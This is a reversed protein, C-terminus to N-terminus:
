GTEAPASGFYGLGLRGLDMSGHLEGSLWHAACKLALLFLSTDFWIVGLMGSCRGGWGALDGGDAQLSRFSHGKIHIKISAGM